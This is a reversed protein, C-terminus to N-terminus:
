ARETVIGTPHLGIFRRRNHKTKNQGKRNHWRGRMDEGAWPHGWRCVQSYNWCTASVRRLNWVWGQGRGSVPLHPLPCGALLCVFFKRECHSAHLCQSLKSYLNSPAKVPHENSPIEKISAIITLDTEASNDDVTHLARMHVLVTRKM